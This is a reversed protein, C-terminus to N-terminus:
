RRKKREIATMCARLSQRALFVRQRLTNASIGLSDALNKRVQMPNGTAALYYDKLLRAEAKPLKKLCREMHAIEEEETHTALQAPVNNWFAEDVAQTYPKKTNQEQAVHRAIGLAFAPPSAIEIGESLRHALRDLVEDALDEPFQLQRRSFFFILKSRLLEYHIGPENATDGLAALLAAFHNATIQRQRSANAHFQPISEENTM